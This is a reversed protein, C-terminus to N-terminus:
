DRGSGSKVLQYIAFFISGVIAVWTISRELLTPGYKGILVHEPYDVEWKGSNAFATLKNLTIPIRTVEDAPSRTRRFGGISARSEDYTHFYWLFGDMDVNFKKQYAEMLEFFDDGTCRLDHEIDAYDTLESPKMIVYGALFSRLEEKDYQREM